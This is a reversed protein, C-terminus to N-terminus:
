VKCGLGGEVEDDGRARGGLGGAEERRHLQDGYQKERACATPFCVSLCLALLFHLSLFYLSIKYCGLAGLKGLQVFLDDATQDSRQM